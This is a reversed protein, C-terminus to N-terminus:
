KEVELRVGGTGFLEDAKALDIEYRAWKKLRDIEMM